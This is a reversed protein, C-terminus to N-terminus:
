RKSKPRKSPSSQPASEAVPNAGEPTRIRQWTALARDRSVALDVIPLPYQQGLTLGAASLIDPPARFPQHIWADPLAALEPVWRRLYDRHPDFREAQLIPNFIRYYPAADAGCGAAWQWGLSNAALDADVLTDYFWRAGELWSIGLNKTLFSAVIMRVRNHMWGTHWLERMGADVIPIGTQGRQWARLGIPEQRWEFARFKPDLPQDTTHPFAFLVHHAFERWGIERLFTEAGTDKIQSAEGTVQLTHALVQRPSLEGFHLHPALGSTGAHDPRNREDAYRNVAEDLFRDLRALAGQEGPTWLSSFGAAWHRTPLLKLDTLSVGKPTTKALTIARPKAQPPPVSSLDRQCARWFPTFVRFPEGSGNRVTWPELLLNGVHSDVELGGDRLTAKIETDRSLTTPEYSRNWHVATAGTTKILAHLAAQTPGQLILLRAGLAQLSQDLAALSHHLWWRSAAGAIWPTEEEPAHIYVPVIHDATKLAHTLAPHDTLRLDRRFWVIATRIPTEEIFALAEEAL